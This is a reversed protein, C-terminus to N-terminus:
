GAGVPPPPPIMSDRKETASTVRILEASDWEGSGQKAKILRTQMAVELLQGQLDTDIEFDVFYPAPNSGREETSTWKRKLAASAGVRRTIAGVNPLSFQAGLNKVDNLWIGLLLHIPHTEGGTAEEVNRAVVPVRQEMLAVLNTIAGRPKRKNLAIDFTELFTKRPIFQLDTARSVERNNIDELPKIRLTGIGQIKVDKGRLLQERVVRAVENIFQTAQRQTMGTEFTLGSVVQQQSQRRYGVPPRKSATSM